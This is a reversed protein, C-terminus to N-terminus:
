KIKNFLIKLNKNNNGAKIEGLIIAKKQNKNLVKINGGKIKYKNKLRKIKGGKKQNNKLENIFVNKWYGDEVNNNDATINPLKRTKKYEELMKKYFSEYTDAKDFYKPYYRSYSASYGENTLDQAWYPRNNFQQEMISKNELYIKHKEEYNKQIDLDNNRKDQYLRIRDEIQNEISKYEEKIEDEKNKVPNLFEQIYKEFDENFQKANELLEKIRM